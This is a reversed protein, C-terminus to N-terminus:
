GLLAGFAQELTRHTFQYGAHELVTPLVRQSELIARAGEAGMLLKPGAMPTPLLTPRGLVGGLTHTYELNTVPEPATLNVPGAVEADLLFRIAGVEDTISIWSCWQRGHGLRGGLGLKFLPLTKKLMGGEVSQVLGSRLHVVRIGAAEATQTAAEWAMALEALFGSGPHTRETCIEDGRDGYIGIASGSLFVPPPSGMSALTGSLLSTSVVRSSLLQRKRADTWRKDGIGAGALSVVADVGKIRKPDLDGRVPDWHLVSGDSGTTDRLMRVVSHGDARLSKTLATGILGSSGTIAVRM